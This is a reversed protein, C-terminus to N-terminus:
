FKFLSIKGFLFAEYFHLIFQLRPFGQDSQKELLFRIQTPVTLRPYGDSFKPVSRYGFNALIYTIRIYRLCLKIFYKQEPLNIKKM